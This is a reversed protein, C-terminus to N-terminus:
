KPKPLLAILQRYFADVETPVIGTANGFNIKHEKANDIITIFSYMNGPSDYDISTIKKSNKFLTEVTEKGVSTLHTYTTDTSFHQYLHGNELLVYTKTKGTFGGGNGFEIRSTPMKALTLKKNCSLIMITLALTFTFQLFISLPYKIKLDFPQSTYIKMSLPNLINLILISISTNQISFNIIHSM